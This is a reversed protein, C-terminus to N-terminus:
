VPRAFDTDSETGRRAAVLVQVGHKALAAREAEEIRDTVLCGVQAASAFQAFSVRGIKDHDCLLIVKGAASVMRKKTEAQNMDPTTAGKAATFGNAGMFAKDVTLGGTWERGQVGVTCHFGKRVTGGMVVLNVSPHDELLQAIALDNTVVTLDKREALCRALELTTTGTDLILTDGDEVLGMAVRAILRKAELNRVEKQRSDLELGTKTRAIAGGHTRILAGSRELDRLYTRVTAGSVKLSQALARVTVKKRDAVEELIRIKREEAFLNESTNALERDKGDSMVASM